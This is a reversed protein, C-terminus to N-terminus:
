NFLDQNYLSNFNIIKGQNKFYDDLMEKNLKDYNM